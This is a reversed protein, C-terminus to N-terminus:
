RGVVPPAGPQAWAQEIAVPTTQCVPQGTGTLSPSGWCRVEGTDTRACTTWDDAWLETAPAGLTIPVAVDRTKCTGVRDSSSHSHTPWCWVAQADVIVCGHERGMVLTSARQIGVVREFGVTEDGCAVHQEAEIGCANPYGTAIALAGPPGVPSPPRGPEEDRSLEWCLM